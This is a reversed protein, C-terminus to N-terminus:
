REYRLQFRYLLADILTACKGLPFNIIIYIKIHGLIHYLTHEYCVSSKHKNNHHYVKNNEQGM